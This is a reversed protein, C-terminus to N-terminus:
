NFRFFHGVALLPTSCFFSHSEPLPSGLHLSGPTQLFVLWSLNALWAHLGTMAGHTSKPRQGANSGAGFPTRPKVLKWHVILGYAKSWIARNRPSSRRTWSRYCTAGGKVSVPRFGKSDIFITAVRLGTEHGRWHKHM